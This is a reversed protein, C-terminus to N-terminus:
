NVAAQTDMAWLQRLIFLVAESFRHKDSRKLEMNSGFTAPFRM